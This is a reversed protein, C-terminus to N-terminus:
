ACVAATSKMSSMPPLIKSLGFFQFSRRRTISYKVPGSSRISSKKAPEAEVACATMSRFADVPLWRRKTRTCSASGTGSFLGADPAPYVVIASIARSRIRLTADRISALTFTSRPNRDMVISVVLRASTNRAGSSRTCADSTSKVSLMLGSRVPSSKSKWTRRSQPSSKLRGM